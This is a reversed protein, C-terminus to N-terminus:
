TQKSRGTSTSCGPEVCTALSIVSFSISSCPLRRSLIFNYPKLCLLSASFSIPKARILIFFSIYSDSANALTSVCRAPRARTNDLQYESLDLRGPDHIVQGPISRAQWSYHIHWSM